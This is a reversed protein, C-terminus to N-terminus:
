RLGKAAKWLMWLGHAAARERIWDRSGALRRSDTEVGGEGAVAFFVTGVLRAVILGGTCSEALALSLGRALLERAAAAEITDAPEASWLAEGFRARIRRDAEALARQGEAGEAVARLTVWGRGLLTGFELAHPPALMDALAKRAEADAESEPWSAIQWFRETRRVRGPFLKDVLPRVSETFIAKMEHPVGPLLVLHRGGSEIHIGPAAGAPNPLARAGKPVLAM